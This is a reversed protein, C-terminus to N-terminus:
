QRFATFHQGIFKLTAAKIAATDVTIDLRGVIDIFINIQLTLLLHHSFGITTKFGIINAPTYRTFQIFVDGITDATGKSLIEIGPANNDTVINAEGAGREAIRYHLPNAIGTAIDHMNALATGLLNIKGGEIAAIVTAQHHGCTM